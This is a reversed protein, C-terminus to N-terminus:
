RLFLGTHHIVEKARIKKQSSYTPYLVIKISLIQTMLILSVTESPAVFESYESIM